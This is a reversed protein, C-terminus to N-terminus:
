CAKFIGMNLPEKANYNICESYLLKQVLIYGTGLPNLVVMDHEECLRFKSTCLKGVSINNNNGNTEIM